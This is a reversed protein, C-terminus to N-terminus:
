GRVEPKPQVSLVVSAQEGIGREQLTSEDSLLQGMFVLRQLAPDAGTEAELKKKLTGIQTSFLLLVNAFLLKILPSSLCVSEKADVNLPIRRLPPPKVTLVWIKMRCFSAVIILLLFTFNSALALVHFLFM